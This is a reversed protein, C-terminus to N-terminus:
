PTFAAEPDRPLVTEVYRKLAETAEEAALAEPPIPRGIVM